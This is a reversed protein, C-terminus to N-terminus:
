KPNTASIETVHYLFTILGFCTLAMRMSDVLNMQDIPNQQANQITESTVQQQLLISQQGGNSLKNLQELTAFPVEGPCVNQWTPKVLSERRQNELPPPAAAAPPSSHHPSYQQQRNSLSKQTNHSTQNFNTHNASSFSFSSM